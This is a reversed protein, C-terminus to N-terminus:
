PVCAAKTTADIVEENIVLGNVEELSSM